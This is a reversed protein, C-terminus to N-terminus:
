PLGRTWAVQLGQALPDTFVTYGSEHTRTRDAVSDAPVRSEAITGGGLEFGHRRVRVGTDM